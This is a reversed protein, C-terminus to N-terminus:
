YGGRGQIANPMMGHTIQGWTSGSGQGVLELNEYGRQDKKFAEADTVRYVTVVNKSEGRMMEKINSDIQGATLKDAFHKPKQLPEVIGLFRRHALLTGPNISIAKCMHNWSDFNERASLLDEATPYLILLKESIKM